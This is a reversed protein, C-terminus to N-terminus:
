GSTFGCMCVVDTVESDDEHHSLPCSEIRFVKLVELRAEPTMRRLLETAMTVDPVYLQTNREVTQTKTGLIIDKMVQTWKPHETTGMNHWILKRVKQGPKKGEQIEPADDSLDYM